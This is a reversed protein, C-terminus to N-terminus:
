EPRLASRSLVCADCRPATPRCIEQGHLVLGVHVAKRLSLPVMREVAANVGETRYHASEPVFALRKLIRLSNSDLPLSSHDLFRLHRALTLM